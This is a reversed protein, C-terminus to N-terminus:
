PKATGPRRKRVYGGLELGAAVEFRNTLAPVGAAVYLLIFPLGYRKWQEKHEAEHAIVDDSDNDTTLYIAGITTGGRGFAWAPMRTFYHMGNKKQFKGRLVRGWLWACGTAFWYGPRAVVPSLLLRRLGPVRAAGRAFSAIRREAASPNAPRIDPLAKM